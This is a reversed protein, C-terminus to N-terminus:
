VVGHSNKMKRPSTPFSKRLKVENKRLKMQNKRLKIDGRPPFLENGRSSNIFEETSIPLCLHSANTNKPTITYKTDAFARSVSESRSVSGDSMESFILCDPCFNHRTVLKKYRQCYSRHNLEGRLPKQSVNTESIPIVSEDYESVLWKSIM